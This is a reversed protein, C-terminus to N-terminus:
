EEFRYVLKWDNNSNFFDRLKNPNVKETLQGLIYYGAQYYAKLVLETCILGNGRHIFPLGISLIENIDYPKSTSYCYDNISNVVEETIRQNHYISVNHCNCIEEEIPQLVTGAAVEHCLVHRMTKSDGLYIGAHSYNDRPYYTSVKKIVSSFLTKSNGLFISGRPVNDLSGFIKM